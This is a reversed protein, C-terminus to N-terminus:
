RKGVDLAGVATHPHVARHRHALAVEPDRGVRGHETLEPDGVLHADVQVDLDVLGSRHERCSVGLRVDAVAM